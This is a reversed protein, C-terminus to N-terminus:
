PGPSGRTGTSFTEPRAASGKSPAAPLPAPPPGPPLLMRLAAAGLTMLRPAAARCLPLSLGPARPQQLPRPRLCPPVPFLPPVGM